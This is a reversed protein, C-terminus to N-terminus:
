VPIPSSVVRLVISVTTRLSQLGSLTTRGRHTARHAHPTMVLLAAIDAPSNLDVPYEIIQEYKVRWGRNVAEQPLVPHHQQVQPYILERLELLHGAGADAMLVCGDAALVTEFAAWHPFGFLSLIVDISAAPFPPQRNSAVLWTVADTRRAAARVAYKSIDFGAASLAGPEGCARAADVLHALYYGEGCGADAVRLARQGASASIMPGVISVVSQALPAFIGSDLVRRRAAVMAQDDGPQRSAKHQVPLLNLYGERARDFRHGAGCLAADTSIELLHGDLPCVLNHNAEVKVRAM